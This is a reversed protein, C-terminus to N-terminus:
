KSGPAPAPETKGDGGASGGAGDKGDGGDDGGGDGGGDPSPNKTVIIVIPGLPTPIHIEVKGGPRGGGERKAKASHSQGDPTKYTCELAKDCLVDTAKGGLVATGIKIPTAAADLRALTVGKAAKGAIPAPGAGALVPLSCLALVLSFRSVPKM